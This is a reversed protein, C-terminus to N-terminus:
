KRSILVKESAGNGESVREASRSSSDKSRERMTLRLAEDRIMGPASSVGAGRCGCRGHRCSKLVSILSVGEPCSTDTASLSDGNHELPDLVRDTGQV